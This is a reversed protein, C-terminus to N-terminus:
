IEINFNFNFICLKFYLNLVVVVSKQLEYNKFLIVNLFFNLNVLINKVRVM